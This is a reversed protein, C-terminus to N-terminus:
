YQGQKGRTFLPLQGFYKLPGLASFVNLVKFRHAAAFVARQDIDGDINRREPIALPIDDARRGDGAGNALLLLDLRFDATKVPVQLLPDRLKLRQQVHNRDADCDGVVGVAAADPGIGRHGANQM